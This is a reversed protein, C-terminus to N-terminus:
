DRKGPFLYDGVFVADRCRTIQVVARGQASSIVLGEGLLSLPMGATRLDRYIALRAGPEMGQDQGRDIVVYDGAAAITHAGAASVVRAPASFDLTGLPEDRDVDPPRAPPEFPELYDNVFIGDCVYEVAALATTENVAVVRLWGGTVATASNGMYSGGYGPSASSGRRVYFRQGVRVGAQPGSGIVVIDQPGMLTHPVTDQTGLVRLATPSAARVAPPACALAIEAAPRSREGTQAHLSSTLLIAVVTWGSARSPM